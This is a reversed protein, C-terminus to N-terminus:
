LIKNLKKILKCASCIKDASSTPHKCNECKTVTTSKNINDIQFKEASKIINIINLPDIKELDKILSRVDIRASGPAYTCETSFYKLKKFYAYFVIEKQFTFKFPKCRPLSLFKDNELFQAKTKHMACRKFRSIDGRILNLMVTEAMDDANHGTAICDVKMEIAAEELAQRRFIGCYTCNGNKGIKKVVEDMSIGFLEKYSLIKLPLRLNKQNEYVTEISRDRYGKIGEDICLLSITLGYNYKRNLKELVYSLVVSDKGGSLGIGVHQGPKFMETDVILQHIENEFLTFFCEKCVKKKNKSRLIVAKAIKCEECSM